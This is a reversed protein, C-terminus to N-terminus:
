FPEYKLIKIMLKKNIIENMLLSLHIIFQAELQYMFSSCNMLKMIDNFLQLM